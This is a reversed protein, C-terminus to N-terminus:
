PNIRVPEFGLTPATTDAHLRAGPWGAAASGAAVIAALADVARDVEAPTNYFYYPVNGNGTGPNWHMSTNIYGSLTTSSVATWLQNGQEEAGAVGPLTVWGAAALGMTWLNFRM